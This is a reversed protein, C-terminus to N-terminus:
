RVHCRKEVSLYSEKARRIFGQKQIQNANKEDEVQAGSLRKKIGQPLYPPSKVRLFITSMTTNTGISSPNARRNM